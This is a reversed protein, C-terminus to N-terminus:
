HLLSVKDKAMMIVNNNNFPILDLYLSISQIDKPRRILLLQRIILLNNPIHSNSGGKLNHM